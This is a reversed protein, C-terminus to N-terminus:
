GVPDADCLQLLVLEDVGNPINLESTFLDGLNAVLWDSSLPLVGGTMRARIM